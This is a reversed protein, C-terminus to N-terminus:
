VCHLTMILAPQMNMLLIIRSGELHIWPDAQAGSAFYWMSTKFSNLTRLDTLPCSARTMRLQMLRLTLNRWTKVTDNLLQSLVRKYNSLSRDTYSQRRLHTHGWSLCFSTCDDLLSVACFSQPHSNHAPCISTKIVTIKLKSFHWTPLYCLDVPSCCHCCSCQVMM